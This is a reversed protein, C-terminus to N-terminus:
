FMCAWVISPLLGSATISAMIVAPLVNRAPVTRDEDVTLRVPNGAM